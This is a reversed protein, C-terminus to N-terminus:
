GAGTRRRTMDGEFFALRGAEVFASLFTQVPADWVCALDFSMATHAPDADLWAHVVNCLVFGAGGTVLLRNAM